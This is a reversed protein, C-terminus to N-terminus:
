LYLIIDVAFESGQSAIEMLGSYKEITSKVSKIGLGHLGSDEKRTIFNEGNKNIIQDFTNKICIILCGEEYKIFLKIYKSSTMRQCAEIANDLLNGLIVVMDDSNIEITVPLIVSAEVEIGIELADQLKSNIISDIILNGTNSFVEHGRHKEAMEALYKKLEPLNGSDAIENLVQLRNKLDHQFQKQLEQKQQIILAERQYYAKEQEILSVQEKSAFLEFLCDQLYIMLYFTVEAALLIISEILISEQKRICLFLLECIMTFLVITELAIVKPSLKRFEDRNFLKQLMAAVIWAIIRSLFLAVSESNAAKEFLGFLNLGMVWATIGESLIILITIGVTACLKKKMSMEYCYVLLFTLLVYTFLNMGAYSAYQDVWFTVLLNVAISLYLLRKDKVESKVVSKLLLIAIYIDFINVAIRNGFQLIELM